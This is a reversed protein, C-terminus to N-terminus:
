ARKKKKGSRPAPTPETTVTEDWSHVSTSQPTTITFLTSDDVKILYATTTASLSLKEIVQMRRHPGVGTFPQGFRKLLWAFLGLLGFTVAIATIYTTTFATGTM